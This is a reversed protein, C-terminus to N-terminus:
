GQCDIKRGTRTNTCSVSTAQWRVGGQADIRAMVRYVGKLRRALLTFRAACKGVSAGEGLNCTVQTFVIGKVTKQYTRQMSKKLASALIVGRYNPAQARAAHAAPLLLLAAAAALLAIRMTTKAMSLLRRAQEDELRRV